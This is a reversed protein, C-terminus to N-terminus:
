RTPGGVVSKVAGLVNSLYSSGNDKKSESGKSKDGAAVHDKTHDSGGKEKALAPFASFALVAALPLAIMLRNRHTMQRGGLPAKVLWFGRGIKSQRRIPIPERGVM